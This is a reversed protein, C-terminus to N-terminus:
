EILPRVPSPVAVEEKKDYLVSLQVLFCTGENVKKSGEVQVQVKFDFDIRQNLLLIHGRWTVWTQGKKFDVCIPSVERVWQVGLIMDYSKLPIVYFSSTFSEKQM